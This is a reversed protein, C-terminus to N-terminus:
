SQQLAGQSFCSPLYDFFVRHKEFLVYRGGPAQMGGFRIQQHLMDLTELRTQIVVIRGRVAHGGQRGIRPGHCLQRRQEGCALVPKGIRRHQDHQCGPEGAGVPLVAVM